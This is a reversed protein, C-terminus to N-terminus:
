LFGVGADKMCSFVKDALDTMSAVIDGNTGCGHSGRERSHTLQHRKLADKLKFTWGCQACHFPREGSHVRSHKNLTRRHHFAKGCEGCRFPKEGTHINRHEQLSSVQTFTRGCDPCHHAREGAPARQLRRLRDQDLLAPGSEPASLPNRRMGPGRKVALKSLFPRWKEGWRLDDRDKPRTRADQYRPLALESPLSLSLPSLPAASLGESPTPGFVATPPPVLPETAVASYKRPQHAPMDVAGERAADGFASKEPTGALPSRSATRVRWRRDACEEKLPEETCRPARHSPRETDPLTQSVEVPQSFGPESVEQKLTVSPEERSGEEELYIVELEPIDVSFHVSELKVTDLKSLFSETINEKTAPTECNRQPTAKGADGPETQTDSADTQVTSPAGAPSCDEEASQLLRQEAMCIAEEMDKPHQRHVWAGAEKPLLSVFQEIAVQQEVQASTRREPKLWRKAASDLRQGLDRAGKQPDYRVSLFDLRSQDEVAWAQDLIRSKLADYDPSTPSKSMSCTEARMKESLLGVLRAGWEARPLRCSAAAQEFVSLYAEPDEEELKMRPMRLEKEMSCCLHLKGCGEAELLKALVEAQIEGQRTLAQLQQRHLDLLSALFRVVDM